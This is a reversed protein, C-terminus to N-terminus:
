PAVAAMGAPQDQSGGGATSTTTQYAFERTPRHSHTIRRPGPGTPYKGPGGSEAATQEAM